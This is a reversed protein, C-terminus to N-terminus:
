LPLGTRFLLWHGIIQGVTVVLAEIYFLGTAAMTQPIALTRRILELLLGALGWCAARGVLLPAFRASTASAFGDGWPSGPWLWLLLASLAVALVEAALCYRCFALMRKLPTLDLDSEILYWHGLLMGSVGSGVVAAGTLSTAVFAVGAADSTSSPVYTMATAAVAGFGAFVALPFLRARM